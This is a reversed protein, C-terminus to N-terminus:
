LLLTQISALSTTCLVLLAKRMEANTVALGAQADMLTKTLVTVEEATPPRGWFLTALRRIVDQPNMVATDTSFNVSTFAKREAPPKYSELVIFKQCYLGALGVYAMVMSTTIAGVVRVTPFFSLVLRYYNQVDPDSFPVGTSTSAFTAFMEGTMIGGKGALQVPNLPAPVTHSGGTTIITSQPSRSGSCSLFSGIVALALVQRWRFQKMVHRIKLEKVM